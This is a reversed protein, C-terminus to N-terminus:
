RIGVLSVFGSGHCATCPADDDDGGVYPAYGNGRCSSCKTAEIREVLERAFGADLACLGQLIFSREAKTIPLWGVPQETGIDLDGFHECRDNGCQRRGTNPNLFGPHGCRPCAPLQVRRQRSDMPGTVADDGLTM